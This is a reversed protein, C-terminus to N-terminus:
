EAPFLAARCPPPTLNNNKLRESASPCTGAMNTKSDESKLSKQKRSTCRGLPARTATFLSSGGYWLVLGSPGSMETM